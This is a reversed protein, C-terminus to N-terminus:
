RPWSKGLAQKELFVLQAFCGGKRFKVRFYYGWSVGAKKSFRESGGAAKPWTLAPKALIIIKLFKLKEAALHRAYPSDPGVRGQGLFRPWSSVHGWRWLSTVENQVKEKRSKEKEKREKKKKEKFLCIVEQTEFTQLLQTAPGQSPKDRIPSCDCSCKPSSLLLSALPKQPTHFTSKTPKTDVSVGTDLLFALLRWYPGRTM